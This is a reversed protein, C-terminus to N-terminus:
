DFWHYLGFGGGEAPQYRFQWLKAFGTGSDSAAYYALLCGLSFYWHINEEFVAEVLAPLGYFVIFLMVISPTCRMIYIYLQALYNLIKHQSLKAWALAGGLLSGLVISSIGVLLTIDLFELLQPLASLVVGADFARTDM